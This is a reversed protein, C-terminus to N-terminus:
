WGGGGGGGSGGGSSGGSSSSSSSGTNIINFMSTLIVKITPLLKNDKSDLINQLNYIFQYEFNFLTVIIFTNQNTNKDKNAIKIIIKGYKRSIKPNYQLKLDVMYDSVDIDEDSLVISIVDQQEATIDSQKLVINIEINKTTNNRYMYSYLKTEYQNQYNSDINISGSLVFLTKINIITNIGIKEMYQDIAVEDIINSASLFEKLKMQRSITYEDTTSIPDITLYHFPIYKIVNEVDNSGAIENESIIYKYFNSKNLNILYYYINSKLEDNYLLLKVKSKETAMIKKM